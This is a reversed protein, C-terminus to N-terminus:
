RVDVLQRHQLVALEDPHQGAIRDNAIQIYPLAQAQLWRLLALLPRASIERRRSSASLALNPPAVIAVISRLPAKWSPPLMGSLYVQSPSSTEGGSSHPPM